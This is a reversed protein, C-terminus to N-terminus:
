TSLSDEIQKIERNSFGLATWGKKAQRKFEALTEWAANNFYMRAREARTMSGESATAWGNYDYKEMWRQLTRTSTGGAKAAETKTSGVRLATFANLVEAPAKDWPMSGTAKRTM